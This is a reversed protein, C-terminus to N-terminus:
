VHACGRKALTRPPTRNGSDNPKEHNKTTLPGDKVPPGTEMLIAASLVWTRQGSDPCEAEAPLVEPEDSM